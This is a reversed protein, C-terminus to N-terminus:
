IIKFVEMQAAYQVQKCLIPSKRHDQSDSYHRLGSLTSKAKLSGRPHYKVGKLTLVAPGLPQHGKGVIPLNGGRSCQWCVPSLTLMHFQPLVFTVLTSIAWWLLTIQPLVHLCISCLSLLLDREWPCQWRVTLMLFKCITHHLCSRGSFHIIQIQGFSTINTVYIWDTIYLTELESCQHHIM